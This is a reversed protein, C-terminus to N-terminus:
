SNLFLSYHFYSVGATASQISAQVRSTNSPVNITQSASTVTYNQGNSDFSIYIVLSGQDGDQLKLDITYNGGPSLASTHFTGAASAPNIPWSGGIIALQAM